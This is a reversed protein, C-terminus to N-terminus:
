YVPYLIKERLSSDLYMERLRVHQIKGNHTLPISRPKLLYVRAPRFGMHDHFNAVMKTALDHLADETMAEGDRIEAFVYVQEGQMGGKDVGVAASFRVDPIADVM